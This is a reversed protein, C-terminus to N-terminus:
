LEREEEDRRIRDGENSGKKSQRLGEKRKVM